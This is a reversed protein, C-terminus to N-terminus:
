VPKCTITHLENVESAFIKPLKLTSSGEATPFILAYFHLGQNCGSIAVGLTLPINCHLRLNCGRIEGRTTVGDYRQRVPALANGSYYGRLM